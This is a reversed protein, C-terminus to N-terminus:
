KVEEILEVLKEEPIDPPQPLCGLHKKLRGKEKRIKMQISRLKKDIIGGNFETNARRVNDIAMDYTDIRQWKCWMKYKTKDKM